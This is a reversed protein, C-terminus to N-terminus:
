REIAIQHALNVASAVNAIPSLHSSINTPLANQTTKGIVIVKQTPFFPYNQMFCRITSPSTFILIGDEAITYKIEQESCNTEYVIAEDIVIGASRAADIWQSAVIKPRLYLWKGHREKANLVNPISEGYGDASEIEKGGAEQLSRATSESVAISKLSNWDLTYNQLAEVGQKSTVIIGEYDSFDISPTLFHIHLIPIHIVGEYPTKSILYIPRL